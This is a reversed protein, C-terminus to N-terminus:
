DNVVYPCIGNNGRGRMGNGSGMRGTGAGQGQSGFALGYTQGIRVQDESPGTGDCTGDCNQLQLKIQEAQENTLKGEAVFSQVMTQKQELTTQGQGGFGGGPGKAEVALSGAALVLAVAALVAIWKNQKMM